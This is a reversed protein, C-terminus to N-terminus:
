VHLNNVFSIYLKKFESEKVSGVGSFVRSQSLVFEDVLRSIDKSSVSDLLTIKEEATTVTDLGFYEESYMNLLEQTTQGNKKSQGILFAKAKQMELDTVVVEGSLDNLADSMLKFFKSANKPGIPTDFAWITQTKLLEIYGRMSYCLGAERARGLIRSDWSNCLLNNIIQMTAVEKATLQRPIAMTFNTFLNELSSREEYNYVNTNVPQTTPGMLRQGNPLMSSSLLGIISDKINEIDGVVMFRLNDITHTKKHYNVVDAITVSKADVMAEKSTQWAGNSLSKRTLANALRIYDAVRQGMEEIVNGSESKLIQETLKPNAIASLRLKLIRLLEDPICDGVYSIGFEGTFANRWAGNEQLEQLYDSKKPYRPIDPGAEVIHELTHAVQFPFARTAEDSGARFQISYAAVPAGPTNVVMGKSGNPLEIIELTHPIAM